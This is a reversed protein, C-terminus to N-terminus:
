IKSYKVRSYSLVKKLKFEKFSIGKTPKIYSTWGQKLLFPYAERQSISFIQSSIKYTVMAVANNEKGNDESFVHLFRTLILFLSQNEDIVQPIVM